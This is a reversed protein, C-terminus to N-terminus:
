AERTKKTLYAMGGYLGGLDGLEAAVLPPPDPFVTLLEKFREDVDSVAIAPNGVIMSGGLVVIDPSTNVVINHVGIALYGALEKWVEPNTIEYPKMGFRKETSAGSVYAELTNGGCEPCLTDDPDIIMKGPEFGVSAKDIEGAEIKVGGVGTSVTVYEVIENGKGAGHMAEGLGVMATDNELYVVGGCAEELAQKIPKGVWDTLHIESLITSHDDNLPGRIGGAMATPQQDGTLSMVTNRFLEIGDEFREPTPVIVPDGFTQLDDSKAIRMKTGGIDFVIYTM